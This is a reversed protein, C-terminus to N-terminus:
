SDRLAIKRYVKNRPDVLEYRALATGMVAESKGLILMGYDGLSAHFRDLVDNRVANDFHILVNRCVVLDLMSFPSPAFLDHVSFKMCRRAGATVRFADGSEELYARRLEPPVQEIKRAAYVGARAVACAETSVDTGYVELALGAHETRLRRLALIALSYAEEGTSCGASWIRITRSPSHLKRAVIAPLIDAAIADFVEIDRFFETVHITVTDLLQEIEKPNGSLYGMYEDLTALKLTSMRLAVRRQICSLRYNSFDKGFKTQLNALLEGMSMQVLAM